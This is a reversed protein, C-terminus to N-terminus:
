GRNIVCHHNTIQPFCYPTCLPPFHIPKHLIHVTHTHTHSHYPFYYYYVKSHRYCLLEPHIIIYHTHLKLIFTLPTCQNSGLPMKRRRKTYECNQQTIKM